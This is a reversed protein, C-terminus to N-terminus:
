EPDAEFIRVRWQVETPTLVVVYRAHVPQTTLVKDHDLVQEDYEVDDLLQISLGEPSYFIIRVDHSRDQYRTRIGMAAQEHITESLKDLATGVFSADLLDARNQDSAANLSQWCQLYDRVVATATQAELPRPGQLKVPEVRVAPQQARLAVTMALVTFILVLSRLRIM